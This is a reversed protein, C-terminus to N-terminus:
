AATAVAPTEGQWTRGVSCASHAEMCGAELTEPRCCGRMCTNAMVDGVYQMALWDHRVIHM